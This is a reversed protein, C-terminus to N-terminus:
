LTRCQLLNKEKSLLRNMSKSLKREETAPVGGFSKQTFSELVEYAMILGTITVFLAPIVVYFGLVNHLDYNRRKWKVGRKFKFFINQNSEDM